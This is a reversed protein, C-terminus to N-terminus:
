PHALITLPLTPIAYCADRTLLKAHMAVGLSENCRSSKLLQAFCYCSSTGRLTMNGTVSYLVVNKYSFKTDYQTVPLTTHM